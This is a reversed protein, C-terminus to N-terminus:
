MKEMEDKPVGLSDVKIGASELVKHSEMCLFYLMVINIPSIIMLISRLITGNQEYGLAKCLRWANVLVLVMCIFEGIGLITKMFPIPFILILIAIVISGVFCMVLNHEDIAIEKLTERNGTASSTASQSDSDHPTLKKEKNKNKHKNSM